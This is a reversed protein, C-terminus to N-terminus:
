AQMSLYLAILGSELQSTGPADILTHGNPFDRDYLNMANVRDLLGRLARFENALQDAGPGGAGGGYRAAM